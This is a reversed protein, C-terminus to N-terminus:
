GETLEILIGNFDKPHLFAIKKGEAGTRPSTDILRFGRKELRNLATQIDTVRFCLHHVANGRTALFKTIPSDESIAEFYEITSSGTHFGAIRVKQDGVIEIFDPDMEFARRYTEIVEDLNKVAIGIHDLDKLM